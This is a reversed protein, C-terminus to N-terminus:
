KFVERLKPHVKDKESVIVNGTPWNINLGEDDWAIGRDHDKSYYNDVKYLVKTNDIQTYFGHAFGKPVLLQHGNRDSLMFGQWQGFTESDPRIDVIVDYISGYLTQILKTQAFPEEQYHLGRITGAKLSLSQNDQIFNFKTGLATEIDIEKYSETFWGRYDHYRTPIFLWADKFKTSEVKM